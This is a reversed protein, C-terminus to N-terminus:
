RVVVISKTKFTRARSMCHLSLATTQCVTVTIDENFENVIIVSTTSITVATTGYCYEICLKGKSAFHDNLSFVRLM